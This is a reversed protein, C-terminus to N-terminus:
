LIEQILLLPTSVVLYTRWNEKKRYVASANGKKPKSTVRSEDESSFDTYSYLVLCKDTSSPTNIIIDGPTECESFSFVNDEGSSNKEENRVIVLEANAFVAGFWNVNIARDGPAVYWTFSSVNEEM